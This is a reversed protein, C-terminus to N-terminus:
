IAAGAPAEVGLSAGQRPLVGVVLQCRDREGDIERCRYRDIFDAFPDRPSPYGTVTMAAQSHSGQSASRRSRSPPHKVRAPRGWHRSSGRVGRAQIAIALGSDDCRSAGM